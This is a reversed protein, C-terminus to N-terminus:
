SHMSSRSALLFYTLTLRTSSSARARGGLARANLRSARPGAGRAVRQRVVHRTPHLAPNPPVRKRRRWRPGSASALKTLLTPNSRGVLLRRRDRHLRWGHRRQRQRHHLQHRRRDLQRRHGRHHRPRRHGAERPLRPPRSSLLLSSPVDLSCRPSRPSPDRSCGGPVAWGERRGARSLRSLGTAEQDVLSGGRIMVALWDFAGRPFGVRLPGDPSPPRENSSRSGRPSCLGRRRMRTLAPSM